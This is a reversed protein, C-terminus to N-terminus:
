IVGRGAKPLRFGFRLRTITRSPLRVSVLAPKLAREVRSFNTNAAAYVLGGRM